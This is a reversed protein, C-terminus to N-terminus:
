WKSFLKFWWKSKIKTIETQNLKLVMETFDREKILKDQVKKLEEKIEKYEFENYLKIPADFHVNNSAINCPMIAILYPEKNPWNDCVRISRLGPILEGNPTKILYEGDQCYVTVLKNNKM